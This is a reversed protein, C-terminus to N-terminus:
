GLLTTVGVSAKQTLLSLMGSCRFRLLLPWDGFCLWAGSATGASAGMTSTAKMETVGVGTLIRAQLRREWAPDTVCCPPFGSADISDAARLSLQWGPFAQM